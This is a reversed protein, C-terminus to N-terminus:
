LFVYMKMCGIGDWEMGDWVMGYWVMGYWGMKASLQINCKTAQKKLERFDVM